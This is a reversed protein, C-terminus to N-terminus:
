SNELHIHSIIVSVININYIRNLMLVIENSAQYLSSEMSPIVMPLLLVSFRLNTL